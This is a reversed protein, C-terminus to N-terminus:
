NNTLRTPYNHYIVKNKVTPKFGYRCYWERVDELPELLLSTRHKKCVHILHRLLFTGIGQGQLSMHVAIYLINYQIAFSFGLLDGDKYTLTFVM